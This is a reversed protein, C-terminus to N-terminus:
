STVPTESAIGMEKARVRLANVRKSIKPHTSFDDIENAYPMPSYKMLKTLASEAAALNRTLELAIRDAESERKRSLWFRGVFMLAMGLCTLPFLVELKVPLSPFYFMKMIPLQLLFLALVVVGVQRPIHRSKLHALEHALVFDTEEPSLVDLLKRSVRLTRRPLMFAMVYNKGGTSDDIIAHRVEVGMQMALMNVRSTFDDEVTEKEYPELKKRCLKQALIPGLGLVAIGFFKVVMFASSNRPVVYDSGLLILMGIILPIASIWGVQKQVAKEEPSVEPVPDGEGPGFLKKEIVFTIPIFIFMALVPLMVISPLGSSSSAQGLWLDSMALSTRNRIFMFAFPMHIAIGIFTPYLALKPYLRRRTKIPLKSSRAVAIASVFGILGATPIFFIFALTQLLIATSMKASVKVTLGDPANTAYYWTHRGQYRPLNLKPATTHAPIKLMVYPKLGASELGAVVHGVPATSSASRLMWKGRSFETQAAAYDGADEWQVPKWDTATGAVANDLARALRKPDVGPRGLVTVQNHAAGTLYYVYVENDSSLKEPIGFGLEDITEVMRRTQTKVIDGQEAEVSASCISGICLLVVVFLLGYVSVNCIRGTNGCVM